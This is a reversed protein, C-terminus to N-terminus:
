TARATRESKRHKLATISISNVLTRGALDLHNSYRTLRQVEVEAKRDHSRGLVIFYKRATRGGYL